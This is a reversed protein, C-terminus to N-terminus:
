RKRGPIKHELKQALQHLRDMSLHTIRAIAELGMGEALMGRANNEREEQRGEQKLAQWVRMVGERVEPDLEDELEKLIDYKENDHSRAIAYQLAFAVFVSGNEQEELTRFHPWLSQLTPQMRVDRSHHFLVYAVDLMSKAQSAERCFESIDILAFGLLAEQAVRSEQENLGELLNTPYSYPKPNHYLVMAYPLVAINPYQRKFVQLCDLQYEGLRFVM